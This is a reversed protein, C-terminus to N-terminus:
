RAYEGRPTLLLVNGFMDRTVRHREEGKGRNIVVTFTVSKNMAETDTGVVRKFVAKVDDEKADIQSATMTHFTKGEADNFELKVSLQSPELGAQGVVVFTYINPVEDPRRGSFGLVRCLTYTGGLSSFLSLNDKEPGLQIVGSVLNDLKFQTSSSQAVARDCAANREIANPALAIRVWNPSGLLPPVCSSLLLACSLLVLKKM